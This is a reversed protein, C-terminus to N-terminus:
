EGEEEDGGGDGGGGDDGGRTVVKTTVVAVKYHSSVKAISGIFSLFFFELVRVSQTNQVAIDKSASYIKYQTMRVSQIKRVPSHM